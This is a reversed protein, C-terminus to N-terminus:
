RWEGVLQFGGWQDFRQGGYRERAALTANRLADVKLRGAKLENYFHEMVYATPEDPVKWLSLVLSDAGAFLLARTLGLLEEAPNTENIGTECASLTVLKVSPAAVKLLERATLVRDALVLGSALPDISEFQAHAAVHVIEATRLGQTVAAVSADSGLRLLTGDFRQAVMIAEARAGPLNGTPDGFVAAVTEAEAHTAVRLARILSASPLVVIPNRELLTEEGVRVAGLPVYHLPGAPCIALVDDPACLESLADAVPRLEYQFLDELDDKVLERVGSASGFHDQVFRALRLHDLPRSQIIVDQERSRVAIVAMTMDDLFAISALVVRRELDRSLVAIVDDPDAPRGQRVEIYGEAAPAAALMASWVGELDAQIRWYSAWFEADYSGADRLRRREKLLENERALLGVPVGPPPAIASDGLVDLFSRARLSENALWAARAPANRDQGTSTATLRVHIRTLAVFAGARDNEISIRQEDEVLGARVMDAIRTAVMLFRAASALEGQEELLGGLELLVPWARDPLTIAHLTGDLALWSLEQADQTPISSYRLAQEFSERADGLDPRDRLVRGIALYDWSLRDTNASQENLDRARELYSLATRHLGLFHHARGLGNLAKALAKPIVEAKDEVLQVAMQYQSMALDSDPQLLNDGSSIRSDTVAEITPRARNRAVAQQRYKSATEKDGLEECVYALRDLLVVHVDVPSFLQDYRSEGFLGALRRAEDEADLHTAAAELHVRAEPLRGEAMLSDALTLYADALLRDRGIDIVDSHPAFDAPLAKALQVRVEAWRRSRRLDRDKERYQFGILASTDIAQEIEDLTAQAIWREVGNDDEEEVARVFPELAEAYLLSPTVVDDEESAEDVRQLSRDEVIPSEADHTMADSSSRPMAGRAPHDEGHGEEPGGQSVLLSALSSLASQHVPYSSPAAHLSARPDKLQHELDALSQRALGYHPDLRLAEEYCQKVRQGDDGGQWMADGLFRYAMPSPEVAISEEFHARALHYAGLAFWTDGLGLLAKAHDPNLRLAARYEQIAIHMEKSRFHEEAAEYHEAAEIQEPTVFSAQLLQVVNQGLEPDQALLEELSLAPNDSAAISAATVHVRQRDEPLEMLGPHIILTADQIMALLPEPQDESAPLSMLRLPDQEPDLAVLRDRWQTVEPDGRALGFLCLLSLLEVDTSGSLDGIRSLLLARSDPWRGLEYYAQALLKVKDRDNPKASLQEELLPLAADWRRRAVLLSVVADLARPEFGHRLQVEDALRTLRTAIDPKNIVYFAALRLIEAGELDMGDVPSQEPEREEVLAHVVALGAIYRDLAPSLRSALSSDVKALAAHHERLVDPSNLGLLTEGDISRAALAALCAFAEEGVNRYALVALDYGRRADVPNDLHLSLGTLFRGHGEVWTSGLDELGRGQEAIRILLRGLRGVIPAPESIDSTVVEQAQGLLLAVGAAIHRENTEAILSAAAEPADLATLEAIWSGIAEDHAVAPLHLWEGWAMGLARVLM